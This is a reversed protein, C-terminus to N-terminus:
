KYIPILELYLTDSNFATFIGLGNGINTYPENLERTDQNLSNYLYAYEDNVSTFVIRHTGFYQLQRIDIAYYNNNTPATIMQFAMGESPAPRDSPPDPMISMPNSEINQIDLFYYKAEPNDWSLEVPNPIEVSGFERMDDVKTIYISQSSMTVAPPEEPIVTVATLIEMGLEVRLRFTDGQVMEPIEEMFYRGPISNDHVLIWSEMEGELIVLADTIHEGGLSDAGFSIMSSLYVDDVKKDVYLYAEVVPEYMDEFVLDSDFCGSLLPVLGLLIFCRKM